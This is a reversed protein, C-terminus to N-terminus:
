SKEIEFKLKDVQKVFDAFENQLELPPLILPLTEIRFIALKPVGVIMKRELIYKQGVESNLYYALYVKNIKNNDFVLKVANETLNANNFREPITGAMGLKEGVNTLYVDNSTITYRKIKEYIDESLYKIDDEIVTSNKLDLVRLYPYNTPEDLLKEGKPVRKGGKVKCYDSIISAEWEMDNTYLNGFM